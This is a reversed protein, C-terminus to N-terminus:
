RYSNTWFHTEFLPSYWVHCSKKLIISCLLSMHIANFLLKFAAPSFSILLWWSAISGCIGRMKLAKFFTFTSSILTTIRPWSGVGWSPFALPTANRTSLGRVTGATKFMSNSTAKSPKATSKSWALTSSHNFFPTRKNFVANVTGCLSLSLCCPFPFSFSWRAIHRGKVSTSIM